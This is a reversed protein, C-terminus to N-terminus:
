TLEAVLYKQEPHLGDARLDVFVVAPEVLLLRDDEVVRLRREGRVPGPDLDACDRGDDIESEDVPLVVLDQMERQLKRGSIASRIACWTASVSAAVSRAPSTPLRFCSSADM